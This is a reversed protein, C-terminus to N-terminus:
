PVGVRVSHGAGTKKRNSTIRWETLERRWEFVNSNVLFTRPTMIQNETLFQTEQARRAASVSLWAAAIGNKPGRSRRRGALLEGYAVAIQAGLSRSRRNEAMALM